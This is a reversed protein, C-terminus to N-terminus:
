TDMLVGLTERIIKAAAFATISSCDYPPCLEVIDFAHINLSSIGQIIDVIVRTPVGGAEPNGVGPAVSPDLVDLDMSLYLQDIKDSFYDVIEKAINPAGRDIIASTPIIKFNKQQAYTLQEPTPARIGVELINKAPILGEEIIRRVVCAHSYLNGEYSEYLDPHADLYLLGWRANDCSTLAKTCFYTILHDGGLFLYKRRPISTYLEQIQKTIFSLERVKSVIDGADYIKWKEKLNILNETFSNYLKGTTAGRIIPPGASAGQRYSSSRDWCIGLVVLNAENIDCHEIGFFPQSNPEKVPNRIQM